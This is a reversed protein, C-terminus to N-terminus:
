RTLRLDQTKREGAALPVRIAAPAISELFSSDMLDSPEVDTLAAVLYEGAPLDRFTYRGDTGPRTFQVRRSLPRWFARDASFVVVFYEPAPVNATSQLTGAIETRQDTLTLVVDGVSSAGIDLPFDLLDRGGAVASKLWWTTDASPTSVLYTGPLVGTIQFTGDARPLGIPVFNSANAIDELRVRVDAPNPVPRTRADFTVRGSVRLPPQLTLAVAVDDDGVTIDALAWRATDPAGATPAVRASVRYKGPLVGTFELNGSADPRKPMSSSSGMVIFTTSKDPVTQRTLYVNVGSPMVSTDSSVRGRVAVTRVLQLAVDIGNREEGEALTLTEARDPDATGPFYIAAYGYTAEPRPAAAAPPGAARAGAPASSARRQLRALIDDMQADSPATLATSIDENKVSVVYKGPVLGFARYVGRDDTIVPASLPDTQTDLPTVDVRAGVAPEGGPNRITGMIAAGRALPVVLGAIRQGSSLAVPTGPRGARKAGFATRVYPPRAAVITFSAGPLNRFAFRGQDDTIITRSPKLADSSITVLVRALPTPPVNTTVITGSIEATGASPSQATPSGIALAVLSSAFVVARAHASTM